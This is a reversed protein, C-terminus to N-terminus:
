GWGYQVQGAISYECEWLGGDSMETILLTNSGPGRFHVNTVEEAPVEIKGLWAGQCDFVEVASGRYHAVLLNGAEDFDMGDPGGRSEHLTAWLRKNNVMGPEAIDYAYLRRTETEAVILTKDDATVALGNSFAYGKDLRLVEGGALRCYVEGVPNAANSGAPATFYLHGANDFYCDNCGRIPANEFETVEPVVHGDLSIRLIGLKMDACWLDNNRDFQLGAPVGGTNAIDRSRGAEFVEIVRGEDPGVMFVRGDRSVCPGEAGKIGTILNKM